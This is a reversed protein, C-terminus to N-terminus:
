PALLKQLKFSHHDFSPAPSVGEFIALEATGMDHSKNSLLSVLESLSPNHGVLLFTQGKIDDLHEDLVELVDELSANYLRPNLLLSPPNPLEELLLEFTQLTRLAPSVLVMNIEIGLENLQAAIKQPQHSGKENLPRDFDNLDYISKDSKAHRMILLKTKVATM